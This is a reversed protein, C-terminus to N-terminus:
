KMEKLKRSHGRNNISSAIERDRYKKASKMKRTDHQQEIAKQAAYANTM